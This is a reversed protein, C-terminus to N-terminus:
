EHTHIHLVYLKYKRQKNAFLVHHPTQGGSNVVCVMDGIFLAFTFLVENIQTTYHRIFCPTTDSAYSNVVCVMDDIFFAVAFLHLVHYSFMTHFRVDRTHILWGRLCVAHNIGASGVVVNIM